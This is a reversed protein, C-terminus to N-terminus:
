RLETGDPRYTHWGHRSRKSTYGLNRQRNHRNCRPGGNNPDTRGGESWPQLHDADSRTTPVRCGPATCRPALTMIADRAAGQFLRRERGWHIPIGNPDLIVFRVHQELAAHLVAVPDLLHGDITECRWQTLQTDAEFPDCLREPFLGAWALLDQFNQWDVLINTVVRSRQHKRKKKTTTPPQEAPADVTDTPEDPEPADTDDARRFIATVADARRQTDTRPMLDTCADDGYQNVTWAWDADWETQVQRDYIDRNIETDVDGWQVILTGQGQYETFHATRHQHTHDRDQHAGDIDALMVFRDVVLAFDDHELHEANRLLQGLVEDFRDRTRPNAWARAIAQANAISIDGAFLSDGVTPFAVILRMPQMHAHCQRGSWGLVGRIWAVISGYGDRRGHRRRDLEATVALRRAELRRAAVELERAHLDLTASDM